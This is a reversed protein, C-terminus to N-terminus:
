QQDKSPDTASETPADWWDKGEARRRVWGAFGSRRSATHPRLLM